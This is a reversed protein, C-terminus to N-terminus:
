NERDRVLFRTFLPTVDHFTADVTPKGVECQRRRKGASGRLGLESELRDNEEEFLRPRAAVYADFRDSPCAGRVDRWVTAAGCVVAGVLTAQRRM